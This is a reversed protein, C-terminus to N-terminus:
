SFWILLIILFILKYGEVSFNAQKSKICYKNCVNKLLKFLPFSSFKLLFDVVFFYNQAQFFILVWILGLFILVILVFAEVENM